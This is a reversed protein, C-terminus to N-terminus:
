APDGTVDTDRTVGMGVAILADRAQERELQDRRAQVYEGHNVEISHEMIAAASAVPVGAESMVTGLTRRLIHPTVNGLKATDAADRISRATM